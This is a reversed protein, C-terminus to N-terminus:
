CIESIAVHQVFVRRFFDRPFVIACDREHGLPILSVGTRATVDVHAQPIGVSLFREEIAFLLEARDFARGFESIKEAAPHLMQALQKRKICRIRRRVLAVDGTRKRRGADRPAVVIPGGSKPDDSM